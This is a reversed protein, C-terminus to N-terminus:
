FHSLVEILTSFRMLMSMAHGERCALLIGTKSFRCAAARMPQTSDYKGHPYSYVAAAHCFM